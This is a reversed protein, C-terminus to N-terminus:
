RVQTNLSSEKEYLSENFAKTNKSKESAASIREDFTLPEAVLKVSAFSVDGHQTKLQEKLQLHRKLDEAKLDYIVSGYTTNDMASIGRVDIGEYGLQKMFFTAPSDKKRNAANSIRLSDVYQKTATM